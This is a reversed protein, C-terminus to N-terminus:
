NEYRGEKGGGREILNYALVYNLLYIITFFLGALVDDRHMVLIFTPLIMGIILGRWMVSIHFALDKLANVYDM